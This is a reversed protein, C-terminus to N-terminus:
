SILQLRKGRIAVGRNIDKENKIANFDRLPCSEDWMIRKKMSIVHHSYVNIRSV